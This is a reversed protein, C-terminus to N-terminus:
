QSHRKRYGATKEDPEGQKGSHCYSLLLRVMKMQGNVAAAHLPTRGERDKGEVYAGRSLLLGAIECNGAVAAWYLPTRGMRDAGNVGAGSNLLVKVTEVAAPTECMEVAYELPTIGGLDENGCQAGKGILCAVMEPDSQLVARHLPAYGKKDKAEVNAGYSILLEVLVRNRSEVAKHLPTEGGLNGPNIVAGRAILLRVIETKGYGSCFHLPSNGLSDVSNVGAGSEILCRLIGECCGKRSALILYEGGERRNVLDPRCRIIYKVINEDNREIGYILLANLITNSNLSAAGLLILMIAAAAAARKLLHSKKNRRVEAQNNGSAYSPLPKDTKAAESGSERPPELNLGTKPERHDAAAAESLTAPNSETKSEPRLVKMLSSSYTGAVMIQQSEKSHRAKSRKELKRWQEYLAKFLETINQFRRHPNKEMAKMVIMEIGKPVELRLRRLSPPSEHIQRYLVAQNNEAHFPVQGALMQYLIVGLSYIDSRCDSPKGQAQEPSMYFSTGIPEGLMTLQTAERAWAIGFDIVVLRSEGKESAEILINSPKVDRHVVGQNHAFDLAFAINMTISLADPIQMPGMQQFVDALSRGHVLEMVLFFRGNDERVDLIRVINPHILRASIYAERMFRSILVTDLSLADDLVKLAVERGHSTDHASYVTAMAGRGIIGTIDFGRLQLVNM